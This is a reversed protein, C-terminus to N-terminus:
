RASALPLSMSRGRKPPPYTSPSSPRTSCAAGLRQRPKPANTKNVPGRSLAEIGPHRCGFWHPRPDLGRARAACLTPATTALDVLPLETEPLDQRVGEALAVRRVVEVERARRAHPRLPKQGRELPRRQRVARHSRR